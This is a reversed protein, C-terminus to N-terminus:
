EIGVATKLLGKTVLHADPVFHDAFKEEIKPLIVVERWDAPYQAREM